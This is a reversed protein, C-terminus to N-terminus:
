GRRPYLSALALLPTRVAVLLLLLGLVSELGQRVRGRERVILCQQDTVLESYSVAGPVAPIM